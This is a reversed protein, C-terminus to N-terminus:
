PVDIFYGTFVVTASKFPQVSTFGVTGADRPDLPLNLATAGSYVNMGLAAFSSTLFLVQYSEHGNSTSIAMVCTEPTPIVINVTGAVSTVIMRKGAPVTPFSIPTIKEILSPTITSRVTFPQRPPSDRYQVLAAQMTQAVAPIVYFKNVAALSGLAVLVSLFLKSM